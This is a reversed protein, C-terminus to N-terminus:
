STCFLGPLGLGHGSLPVHYVRRTALPLRALTPVRPYSDGSESCTLLFSMETRQAIDHLNM